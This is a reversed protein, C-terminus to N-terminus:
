FIKPERWWDYLKHSKRPHFRARTEIKLLLSKMEKSSVNAIRQWRHLIEATDTLSDGLEPILRLARNRARIDDVAAHYNRSKALALCMSEGDSGPGIQISLEVFLNLEAPSETARETLLDNELLETLDVSEREGENSRLYLAEVAVAPCLIFEAPIERFIRAAQGTALINLLVSPIM